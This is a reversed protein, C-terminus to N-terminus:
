SIKDEKSLGFVLFCNNSEESEYQMYLVTSNDSARTTLALGLSEDGPKGFQMAGTSATFEFNSLESLVFGQKELNILQPENLEYLNTEPTITPTSTLIITPSPQAVSMPTQTSSLLPAYETPPSETPLSCAVLFVSLLLVPIILSWLEKSFIIRKLM